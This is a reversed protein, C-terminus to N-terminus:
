LLPHSQVFSILHIFFNLFSSSYPSFFFLPLFSPFFVLSFPFFLSFPLHVSSFVSWLSCQCNLFHCLFLIGLPRWLVLSMVTFYFFVHSWQLSPFPFTLHHFHHVSNPLLSFKPSTVQLLTLSHHSCFRSWLPHLFLHFTLFHPLHITPNM